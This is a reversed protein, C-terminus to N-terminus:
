ELQTHAEQALKRWHPCEETMFAAFEDATSGVAKSGLGVMWESFDRGKITRADDARRDTEDAAGRRSAAAYRRWSQRLFNRWTHKRM